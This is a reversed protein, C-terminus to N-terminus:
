DDPEALNIVGTIFDISIQFRREKEDILVISGGSSNGAPYFMVTFLGSNIEDTGILAKEFHIGDPLFYSETTHQKESSDSTEMPETEDKFYSFENDVPNEPQITMRNNEFDFDAKYTIQGSVAQSRAYRLSSSIKQASTKLNMKTLSGILRPSVLAMMLSIILLVVILELLSFGRQGFFSNRFFVALTTSNNGVSLTRM